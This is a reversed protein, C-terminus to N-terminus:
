HAREFRVRQRYPFVEAVEGALLRDQLGRWYDPDFLEGHMASFEQKVQRNGFLFRRFEEPFVDNPAVSYWIEGSMEEEPTRPEPIHRFNVDTLYCIEDYDYFVVRGHRTVGFNKLLMDGPFINAAALQKIANGYEELADTIQEGTADELYLNLPTMQRETYLHRILVQDGEISVSDAAVSLLEDLLAPDFRNLPLSMNHFEQTDAMRGVRDHTKVVHYSQKVKDRTTTKQRPFRDKIIKFVTQYSPLVFVAMVMGPIGPAIIFRDSSRDLHTRFQRFFDTKGHKQLGIAAYLEYRKKQPMLESLFDVMAYPCPLDVMFYARTFSFTVSVQDPDTLLTDVYLARAHSQLIPVVMPLVHPIRGGSYCLRGVLYAGKNRYFVSRLVQVRLRAGSPLDAPCASRLAAALRQSDRELNEWPLKFDLRALMARALAILDDGPLEAYIPERPRAPPVAFASHLFMAREDVPADDDQLSRYVSNYFTEALEYDQTARLADAYHRKIAQWEHSELGRRTAGRLQRQMDLVHRNYLVLRETHASQVGLWNATEFRQRATRTILNFGDRYARFADHITRALEAPTM